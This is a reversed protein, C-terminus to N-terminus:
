SLKEVDREVHNENLGFKALLTRVESIPLDPAHKEFASILPLQPDLLARAQDIEGIAVSTGMTATGSIPEQNGLLGRLLTSKGAGNPGTIGIRDGANVQISVPGLTFDGQTFSADNLTSVVSSSRSAKGVSFQLK